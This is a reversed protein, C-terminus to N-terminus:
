RMELADVQRDLELVSVDLRVGNLRDWEGADCMRLKRYRDAGQLLMDAEAVDLVVFHKSERAINVKSRIDDLTKLTEGDLRHCNGM